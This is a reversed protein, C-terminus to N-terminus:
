VGTGPECVPCVFWSLWRRVGAKALYSVCDQIQVSLDCAECNGERRYVVIYVECRSLLQASSTLMFCQVKTSTAGVLHAGGVHAWPKHRILM